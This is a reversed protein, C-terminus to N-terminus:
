KNKLLSHITKKKLLLSPREVLIWSFIGLVITLMLVSIFNGINGIYGYYIFINIVPIHYIYVGYSIDKRRLISNSIEPSSYAAVFLLIIMIFFAIPNISNGMSINFNEIILLYLAM